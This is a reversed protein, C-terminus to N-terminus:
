VIYRIGGWMNQSKKTEVVGIVVEKDFNYHDLLYEATNGTGYILVDKKMVVHDKRTCDDM